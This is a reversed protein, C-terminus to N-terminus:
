NEDDHQESTQQMPEVWYTAMKGKGKIEVTGRPEIAYLGLPRIYKMCTESVHLRMPLGNSEMRAATNVADGFLCYRPTRVGVVGGVVTGSHAGLKIRM